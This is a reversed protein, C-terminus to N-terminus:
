DFEIIEKLVTGSMIIDLFFADLLDTDLAKGAV